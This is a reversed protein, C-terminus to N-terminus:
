KPRPDNSSSLRIVFRCNSLGLVSAWSLPGRRPVADDHSGPSNHTINPHNQVISVENPTAIQTRGSNEGITSCPIPIGPNQTWRSPSTARSTVFKIAIGLGRTPAGSRATRLVATITPLAASALSSVVLGM